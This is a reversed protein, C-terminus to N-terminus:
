RVVRFQTRLSGATGCDVLIPWRGLTAHTGVKWTWALRGGVAPRAPNLGTAHTRGNKDDVSITCRPRNPFVVAVLRGQDGRAVPSRVKVLRLPIVGTNDSAARVEAAGALAALVLIAGVAAVTRPRPRKNGFGDPYVSALAALASAIAAFFLALYYSM